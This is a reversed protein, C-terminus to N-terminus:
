PCPPQPNQNPPDQIGNQRLVTLGDLASRTISRGPESLSFRSLGRRGPPHDAPGPAPVGEGLHGASRPHHDAPGRQTVRPTPTRNM